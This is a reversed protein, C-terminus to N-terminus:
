FRKMKAYCVPYMCYGQGNKICKIYIKVFRKVFFKKFSLLLYRQKRSCIYFTRSFQCGCLDQKSRKVIKFIVFNFSVCVHMFSNNFRRVNAKPPLFKQQFGRQFLFLIVSVNMESYLTPGLTWMKLEANRALSQSSKIGKKVVM